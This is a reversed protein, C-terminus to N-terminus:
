SRIRLIFPVRFHTRIQSRGGATRVMKRAVHPAISSSLADTLMRNDGQTSRKAYIFKLGSANWCHHYWQPAIAGPVHRTYSLQLGNPLVPSPYPLRPPCCHYLISASGYSCGTCGDHGVISAVIHGDFRDDQLLSVDVCAM